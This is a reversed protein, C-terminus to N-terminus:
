DSERLLTALTGPEVEGVDRRHPLCEYVTGRRGDQNLTVIRVRLTGVVALARPEDLAQGSAIVAGAGTREVIRDLASVDDTDEVIELDPEAELAAEVIERLLPPLGLLVVKITKATM